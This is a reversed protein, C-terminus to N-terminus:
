IDFAEKTAIPHLHTHTTHTHTNGFIGQENQVISGTQIKFSSWKFNSLWNTHEERDVSAHRNTNSKSLAQKPLWAPLVKYCYSGANGLFVICLLSWSGRTRVM